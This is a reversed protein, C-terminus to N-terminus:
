WHTLESVTDFSDASPLTTSTAQTAYDVIREYCHYACLKLTVVSQYCKNCLATVIDSIQIIDNFNLPLCNCRIHKNENLGRRRRETSHRSKHAVFKCTILENM